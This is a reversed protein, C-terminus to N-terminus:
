VLPRKITRFGVEGRLIAKSGECFGGFKYFSSDHRMPHDISKVSTTPTPQHTLNEHALILGIEHDVPNVVELGPEVGNGFGPLRLTTALGGWNESKSGHKSLPASLPAARLGFISDQSAQSITRQLGQTPNRIISSSRSGRSSRSAGEQSRQRTMLSDYGNGGARPSHGELPSVPSRADELITSTIVSGNSAIEIEKKREISTSLLTPMAHIGLTPSDGFVQSLRSEDISSVSKRFEKQFMIRSQRRRELFEENASLRSTVIEKPILRPQQDNIITTPSVDRSPRRVPNSSPHLPSGINSEAPSENAWPSSPVQPQGTPTQVALAPRSIEVSLTTPPPLAAAAAAISQKMGSLQARDNKAKQLLEFNRLYEQLIQDRVENIMSVCETACRRSHQQLNTFHKQDFTDPEDEEFDQCENLHDILEIRLERMRALITEEFGNANM